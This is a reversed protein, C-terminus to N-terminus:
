KTPANKKTEEELEKARTELLVRFEEATKIVGLVEPFRYHVDLVLHVLPMSLKKSVPLFQGLNMLGFVHFCFLDWASPNIEADILGKKMVKGLKKARVTPSPTLSNILTIIDPEKLISYRWQEKEVTSQELKDVLKLPTKNTSARIKSDSARTHKAGKKPPLTIKKKM